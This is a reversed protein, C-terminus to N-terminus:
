ARGEPKALELVKNLFSKREFTIEGDVISLPHKAVADFVADDTLIGGDESKGLTWGPIENNEMMVALAEMRFQIAQVKAIDKNFLKATAFLGLMDSPHGEAHARNATEVVRIIDRKTVKVSNLRELLKLDSSANEMAM